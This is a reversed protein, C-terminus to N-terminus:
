EELKIGCWPCYKIPYKGALGFENVQIIADEKIVYRYEFNEASGCEELLLEIQEKKIQSWIDEIMKNFNFDEIYKVGIDLNKNFVASCNEPANIDYNDRFTYTKGM